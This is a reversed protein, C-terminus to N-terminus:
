RAARRDHDANRKKSKGGKRRKKKVCVVKGKRRVPRKGSRAPRDPTAPAPPRSAVPAPAQPLPPSRRCSDGQCPDPEPAPEPFGGGVRADYLDYSADNDWGLLRERTVFFVDSGDPSADM